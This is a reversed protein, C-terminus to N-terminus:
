ENAERLAKKMLGIKEKEQMMKLTEEMSNENAVVRMTINDSVHKSLEQARVRMYSRVARGVPSDTAVDKSSLFSNVRADVGSMLDKQQSNDPIYSAIGRGILEYGEYAKGITAGTIGAVKNFWEAEQKMADGVFSIVSGQISVALLFNKYVISVHSNVYNTVFEDFKAKDKIGEANAAEMADAHVDGLYNSLALKTGEGLEKLNIGVYNITKGTASVLGMPTPAYSQVMGAATKTVNEVSGFSKYGAQKAAEYLKEGSGTAFLEYGVGSDVWIDVAASALQLRSQTKKSSLIGKKADPLPPPEGGNEIHTKYLDKYKATAETVSNVTSLPKPTPSFNTKKAVEDIVQKTPNRLNGQSEPMVDAADAQSSDSTGDQTVEIVTEVPIAAADDNTITEESDEANAGTSILLVVLFIKLNLKM